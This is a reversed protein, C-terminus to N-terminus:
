RGAHRLANAVMEEASMDKTAYTNILKVADNKSYGLSVLVSIADDKAESSEFYISNLQENDNIVFGSVKDKLELCIREATKKGLGKVSSLLKVDNSNIAKILNSVSASSLVSIAMKPGIGSVSILDLFLAKEEKDIFGFLNMGDEKVQLYTLITVEDQSTAKSITNVSCFVEFCLNGIDFSITNEAVFTAKGTLSYIM